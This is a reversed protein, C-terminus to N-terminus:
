ILEWIKLRKLQKQTRGTLNEFEPNCDVIKGTDLEILVIGDRAQNFLLRYRKESERLEKQSREFSAKGSGSARIGARPSRKVKKDMLQAPKGTRKISKTRQRKLEKKKSPM